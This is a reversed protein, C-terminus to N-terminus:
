HICVCYCILVTMLDYNRQIYRRYQEFRVILLTKNYNKFRSHHTVTYLNNMSPKFVFWSFIFFVDTKKIKEFFRLVFFPFM